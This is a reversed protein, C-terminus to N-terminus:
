KFAEWVRILLVTQTTVPKGHFLEWFVYLIILSCFTGVCFVGVIFLPLFIHLVLTNENYQYRTNLTGNGAIQSMRKNYKYLWFMPGAALMVLVGFILWSYIVLM